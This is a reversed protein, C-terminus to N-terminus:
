PAGSSQYRRVRIAQVLLVYPLQLLLIVIYAYPKGLAACVGLAFMQTSLGLNVLARASFLDAWARREAVSATEWDAGAALKFLREDYRTLLRDQPALLLAYAGRLLRMVWAPAGPPVRAHSEASGPHGWEILHRNMANFEASLILTLAVFGMLALLWPGHAALATFLAANVVLDMLTDLYRGMETVRGTARALGGDVNDLISKVQLLLAALVWAGHEPKALLLAALLGLATHLLVVAHPAVGLPALRRVAARALPLYVALLLERAPRIKESGTGPM